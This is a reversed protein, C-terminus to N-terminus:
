SLTGWFQEPPTLIARFSWMVLLLLSISPQVFHRSTSKAELEAIFTLNRM